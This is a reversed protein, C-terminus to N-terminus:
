DKSKDQGSQELHGGTVGGSVIFTMVDSSDIDLRTIQTKKVILVSGAFNYSQPLYVAVDDPRDLFELSKRTIFGLACANGGPMLNVLVPKDFKKQDGVFAGILDKISTYILKILPLREFLRVVLQLLPRTIFMSSLFGVLTVGIVTILVGIVPGIWPGINPHNDQLLGWVNGGIASILWHVIYISLAAPILFLLGNAFYKFLQKM